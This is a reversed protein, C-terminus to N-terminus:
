CCGGKDNKKGRDAFNALLQSHNNRGKNDEDEVLLETLQDRSDSM